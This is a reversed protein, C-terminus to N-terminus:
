TGATVILDKSEGLPFHLMKGFTREKMEVFLCETFYSLLIFSISSLYPRERKEWGKIINKDAM